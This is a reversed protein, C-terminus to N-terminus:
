YRPKVTGEMHAKISALNKIEGRQFSRRLIPSLLRLFGQPILKMTITLHTGGGQNTVEGRFAVNMGKASAYVEWDVPRKIYLYECTMPPSGKWLALFKTGVVIPRPTLAELSLLGDPNWKLENELNSCYDFVEEVSRQILVSNVLLIGKENNDM